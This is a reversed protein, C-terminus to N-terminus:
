HGIPMHIPCFDGESHTLTPDPKVFYLEIVNKKVMHNLYIKNVYCKIHDDGFITIQVLHSFLSFYTPQSKTKVHIM